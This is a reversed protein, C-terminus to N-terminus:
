NLILLSFSSFSERMCQINITVSAHGTGDSGNDALCQYVRVHERDAKEIILRGGEIQFLDNSTIRNGESSWKYDVSKGHLNKAKCEVEIRVGQRFTISRDSVDRGNEYIGARLATLVHLQATMNINDPLLNCYYVGEDDEQANDVLLSHDKQNIQLRDNTSIRFNQQFLWQEPKKYWM